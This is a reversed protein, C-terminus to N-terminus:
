HNRCNNIKEHAQTIALKIDDHSAKLLAEGITMWKGELGEERQWKTPQVEDSLLFAVFIYIIKQNKEGEDDTYTFSNTTVPTQGLIVFDKYGTEEYVERKASAILSEGEEVHGKPLLWEDREIKHILFVSNMEKNFLVAGATTHTKM